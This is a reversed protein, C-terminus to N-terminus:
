PSAEAALAPSPSLPRCPGVLSALTFLGWVVLLRTLWNPLQSHPSVPWPRASWEAGREPEVRIPDARRVYEVVRAPPESLDGCPVVFRAAPAAAAHLQTDLTM